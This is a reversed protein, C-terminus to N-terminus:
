ILGILTREHSDNVYYAGGTKTRYLKGEQRVNHRWEGMFLTQTKYNSEEGKGHRCNDLFHGKYQCHSAEDFQIRGKGTFRGNEWRGRLECMYTNEGYVAFDQPADSEEDSDDSWTTYYIFADLFGNGTYHAFHHPQDSALYHLSTL